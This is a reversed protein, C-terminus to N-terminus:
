NSIFMDSSKGLCFPLKLGAQGDCGLAPQLTKAVFAFDKTATLSPGGLYPDM